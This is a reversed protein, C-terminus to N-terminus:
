SRDAAAPPVPGEEIQRAAYAHELQEILDVLHVPMPGRAMHDFMDRLRVGLAGVGPKGKLNRTVSDDM